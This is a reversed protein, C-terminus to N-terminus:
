TIGGKTRFVRPKRGTLLYWWLVRRSPILWVPITKLHRPSLSHAWRSAADVAAAVDADSFPDSM